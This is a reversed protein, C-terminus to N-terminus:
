NGDDSAALGHVALLNEQKQLCRLMKLVTDPTHNKFMNKELVLESFESQATWHAQLPQHKWLGCCRCHFILVSIDIAM